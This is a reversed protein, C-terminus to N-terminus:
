SRDKMLDVERHGGNSEDNCDSCHQGILFETLTLEIRGKKV